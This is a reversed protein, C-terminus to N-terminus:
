AEARALAMAANILGVHTYAQPFNGLPALSGIEIEEAFLGLDNACGLVRNFARRAAGVDGRMALNDVAWFSCLGFAGEPTPRPYRWWLGECELHQQLFAYTSRMRADGPDRYGLCGMLLLSADPQNGGLVGVYSDLAADYGRTEILDRLAARQVAFHPPLTMRKGEGLACLAELATWCMVKSFTYHRPEGRLEWIGHDPDRWRRCVAEGYGRLLRAEDRKLEGTAQVYDRAAFCVAGYVDLQQQAHAANGIRVPQAGRWGRWHPLTTEPIEPNGYVDYLVQLRPWTLRTAHLLWDFFAGAEDLYGLGTFARMTLAADRLWCYRYDWNLDGGPVEPLSSSPAAIVAGSLAHTLLKLTIASRLVAARDAGTYRARASWAQWWQRTRECRQWAADGLPM